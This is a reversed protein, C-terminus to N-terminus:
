SAAVEGRAGAGANNAPNYALRVGEFTLARDFGQADAIDSVTAIVSRGSMQERIRRMLEAAEASGFTSLAGDIIFVDPRKVLCRALNVATRQPAFLMKGGPGVDFELGLRYIVKEIGVEQLTSRMAESVRQDANSQGFSIRGFLLNDRIPAAPMYADPDYFEIHAEYDRPLYRRFSQRTRVMRQMFDDDVLGLRHRPEIYGLALTILRTRGEHSMRAAADRGKLQDLLRQFDAFEDARILAYREFLPHGPPLDKFIDLTTEAIKFGIEVLPQTLAEAELIMKAYPDTALRGVSLQEGVPVGFLLNEGISANGNYSAPDFPEVLRVLSKDKLKERIARRAAVFREAAAPDAGKPLTGLLGFRYIEDALGTARLSALIAEDLQDPGSVGAATYDIWDDDPSAVPNGSRVSEAQRLAEAASMASDRVPPPSRLLSFTVNERVSGSFLTPETGAYAIIRSALEEPMKLIDHTGIRAAGQVETIQRGLVKAVIDRGSGSAGILAIHAPRPITVTTTELLATGRRDLVRLADLVIPTNAHPAKAVDASEVPQPMLRDPSFQAVIQQYKVLVDAREQDWDILEKIPPPLDRYAAIVAVLQGIDLSGKLALYGGVSYFFFPTIQALFNNLYKVAFKRKFLDVRISFLQGLRQGIEAENYAATGHIHVAPAGEVIEGVRGALKRSAIQRERTLELQRRRLRPIVFAQVLIIGLAITGLWMSQTLIFALATLAQTGLFAPQIFADGVFGGIPEIEDKIISAAEAPKVARIDEPRFRLLTSFLEFRMRRLMREGLVGKAINIVYKFAGNIVVFALFLFSLALLYSVQDLDLGNSLVFRGGGLFEPLSISWNFLKATTQGGKFARGQLADNVILKPIDLAAWYFPLSVLIVGLILLQDRRSHRWIFRFLNSDLTAGTLRAAGFRFRCHPM